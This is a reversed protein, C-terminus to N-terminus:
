PYPTLMAVVVGSLIALSSHLNQTHNGSSVWRCGALQYIALKTPLAPPPNLVRNPKKSFHSSTSASQPLSLQVTRQQM